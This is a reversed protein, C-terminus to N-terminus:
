AKVKFRVEKVNRPPIYAPADTEASFASAVEPQKLVEVVFEAPAVLNFAGLMDLVVYDEEKERLQKRVRNLVEDTVRQTRAPPLVSNRAGEPRLKIVAAVQASSSAANHIHALLEPDIKANTHIKM